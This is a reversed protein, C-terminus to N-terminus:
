QLRDIYFGPVGEDIDCRMAQPADHQAISLIATDHDFRSISM